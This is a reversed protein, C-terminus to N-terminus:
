KSNGEVTVTFTCNTENGASDVAQCVVETEGIGFHSGSDVECTTTPSQAMIDSTYIVTAYAHSPDTHVTQNTPCLFGPAEHETFKMYYIM